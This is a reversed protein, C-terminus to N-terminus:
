QPKIWATRRQLEIRRADGDIWRLVDGRDKRGIDIAVTAVIEHEREARKSGKAIRRLVLHEITLDVVRAHRGAARIERRLDWLERPQLATGCLETPDARCTAEVLTGCGSGAVHENQAFWWVAALARHIAHGVHM